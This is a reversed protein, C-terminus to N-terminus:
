ATVVEIWYSFLMKLASPKRPRKIRDTKKVPKQKQSLKYKKDKVEEYHLKYDDLSDKITTM